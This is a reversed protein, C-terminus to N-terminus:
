LPQKKPKNQQRPYGNPTAKMKEIIILQRNYKNLLVFKKIETIKGYLTKLANNAQAIEEDTKESKYAILRGGVKLLPLSYEILTNLPAVARAVVCDAKERYKGIGAEEIRIHESTICKLALEVIATNLFGIRKNLSDLLIFENNPLFLKLPISPFGAGSGVDIVCENENIYPLATLSDLYHKEIIEDIDTIATLNFKENYSLLLDTFRALKEKQEASIIIGAKEFLETIRNKVSM